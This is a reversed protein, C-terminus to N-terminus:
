KAVLRAKKRGLISGDDKTQFVMKNGIVKRNNPRETIEWTKNLVQAMFEDEVARKWHVAEKSKLAEELTLPDGTVALFALECDEFEDDISTDNEAPDNNPTEDEQRQQYMKRPRGRQGTRLLKPRGRGRKEVVPTEEEVESSSSPEVQEDPLNDTMQISLEGEPENEYFEEYKSKFGSTNMFKVDNSVVISRRTPVKGTWYTYPLEGFLAKTPCRNRLYSATSIAEAWFSPPAGAQKMMCRAMEVLTRNQREAVGNQQPTHPASLRRSIGCQRLFEDSEKNLFETGNDSEYGKETIKSVSLLNQRLDSVFLVEKLTIKENRKGKIDIKVDGVGNVKTTNSDALHLTKEISRIEGFLNKNSSMHASCGGDLCWMDNRGEAIFAHENVNMTMEKKYRNGNTERNENKASYSSEKPKVRCNRAIHGVKNCVFCKRSEKQPKGEKATKKKNAYLASQEERDSKSKRAESEELIKVRLVEPSPLDDRTEIACWIPVKSSASLEVMKSLLAQKVTIPTDIDTSAAINSLVNFDKRPRGRQGTRVLRHRGPGRRVGAEESSDEESEQEQAQEEDVAAEEPNPKDCVAVEESIAQIQDDAQPIFDLVSQKAGKQGNKAAAGNGGAYFAQQQENEETKQEIREAEELLKVKIVEFSPLSDRTEM